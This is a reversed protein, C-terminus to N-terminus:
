REPRRSMRATGRLSYDTGGIRGHIAVFGPKADGAEVLTGDRSVAPLNAQLPFADTESAKKGIGSPAAPLGSEQTGLTVPVPEEGSQFPTAGASRGRGARVGSGGRPVSGADDTDSTDHLAAGGPHIVMEPLRAPRSWFPAALHHAKGDQFETLFGGEFQGTFCSAASQLSSGRM